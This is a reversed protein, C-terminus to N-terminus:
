EIFKKKVLDHNMLNKDDFSEDYSLLLEAQEEKTLSEWLQGQTRRIQSNFLNFFSELLGENNVSDILKHFQEKTKSIEMM